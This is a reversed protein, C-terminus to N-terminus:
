ASQTAQRRTRLRVRMARAAAGVRLSAWTLFALWSFTGGIWGFALRQQSVTERVFAENGPKRFAECLAQVELTTLRHIPVQDPRNGCAQSSLLPKGNFTTAGTPSLWFWVRSDTFQLLAKNPWTGLLTALVVLVMAAICVAKAILAYSSPIDQEKLECAELDFLEGCAKIDSLEEDNQESWKGVRKAQALTRARVGFIFRFRILRDRSEVLRGIDRDSLATRGMVVRWLRTLVPHASGSRWCLWGFIASFLAIAIVPVPVALWEGVSRALVSIEVPM